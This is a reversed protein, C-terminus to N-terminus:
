KLVIRSVATGESTMIRMMYIGREESSLDFTNNYYSSNQNILESYVLRGDISIINISVVSVGSELSLQVDFQGQTPNPFLNMESIGNYEEISACEGFIVLVTDTWTCNNGDTATVTYQGNATVSETAGTNGSPTWYFNSLGPGPDLVVAGTAACAVTDEGLNVAAAPTINAQVPTRIDSCAFSGFYVTGNFLRPYNLGGFSSCLGTGATVTIDGAINTYDTSVTGTTYSAAYELYIGVTQGAPLNIPNNLALYTSPSGTGGSTITYSGETTWAGANTENGLHSGMIYHVTVPLPNGATVTSGMDFGSIVTGNTATVDFMSGGGCSNGAAYTTQITDLGNQPYQLYYTDQATISPITYVNGTGVLNGGTAADYWEYNSTYTSDAYLNTVDFGCSPDSGAGQPEFPVFSAAMSVTDNSINQDNPYVTYATIMVDGGNYTDITGVLVTDVQNFNITNTYTTNLTATVAGTVEVVIPLSTIPTAYNTVAVKIETTANGCQSAGPQIIEVMVADDSLANFEDAGPDVNTGMPRSDGDIDITVGVSNDGIDNVLPSIVHLDDMAVFVPDTEVSNINLTPQATQWATLDAIAGGEYVFLANDTWYVNYDAYNFDSLLDVSAYFAEDSESYFINNIIDWNECTSLLYFAPTSSGYNAVTNHVFSVSDSASIYMGYDSQSYIMNNAFNSKETVTIGASVNAYYLYMGYDPAKISNREFNFNNVYYLYMGEGQTNLVSDVNNGIIDISDQYYAYVGYDDVNYIINNTVQNGVCFTTSTTMGYLSIGREGGTITNGDFVCHTSSQGTSNDNTPDNSAMIGAVDVINLSYEMEINCNLISDYEAVNTLFVGWADTTGTNRITFNKFTIFDGGDLNVTGNSGTGDHQITTTSADGGDFTITNTASAGFISPLVVAENYTGPAVNFLVPGDIGCNTLDAVAEAFTAYDPTTGGIAYTGNLPTCFNFCLTDNSPVNDTNGNPNATWVCVDTHGIPFNYTGLIISSSTQGSTLASPLTTPTQLVGNVSWNVDGTNVTNNGYNQVLASVFQVGPSVPNTPQDIAVPAIDDAIDVMIQFDDIAMDSTFSTGTLATFRFQVTNGIYSTLDHSSIQWLDQNDTGSFLNTWTTGGDTTIDFSMTGMTAGYMHYAFQMSAATAASPLLFEPSYLYAVQGYCSSTEILMYMGTGTGPNYDVSPGTSGSTTGGSDGEWDTDDTTENTWGPAQMTYVASCSLGGQTEGEFDQIYPYSSIVQANANIGLLIVALAGIKLLNKKM